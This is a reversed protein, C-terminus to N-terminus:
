PELLFYSGRSLDICFRNQLGARGRWVMMVRHCVGNSPAALEIQTLHLAWDTGILESKILGFRTITNIVFLDKTHSVWQWITTGNDWHVWDFTSSSLGATSESFCFGGLNNNNNLIIRFTFYPTSLLLSFLTYYLFAVFIVQWNYIGPSFIFACM